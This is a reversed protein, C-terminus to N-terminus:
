ANALRLNKQDLPCPSPIPEGPLIQKHNTELAKLEAIRRRSQKVEKILQKNTKNKNQM